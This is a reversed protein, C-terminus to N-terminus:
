SSRPCPLLVRVIPVTRETSRADEAPRDIAAVNATPPGPSPEMFASRAVIKDVAGPGAAGGFSNVPVILLLASVVLLRGPCIM